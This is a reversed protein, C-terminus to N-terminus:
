SSILVPVSISSVKPLEDGSNILVPLSISSVIVTDQYIYVDNTYGRGVTGSIQYVNVILTPMYTGSGADIIYQALTYTTEPSTIGTITHLLISKNENYIDVEYEESDEGLPVEGTDDQLSGGIRTRRVWTLTVGGSGDTSSEVHAPAYPKLNSGVATLDLKTADEFVIGRGQARYYRLANLDETSLKIYGTSATNVFVVIEGNTHTDCAWETGRRGRLLGTLTYSGDDNEVVDRYQIIEDGVIAANAYNVMELQSVSELSDGGRTM